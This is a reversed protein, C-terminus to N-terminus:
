PPSDPKQNPNILTGDAAVCGAQRLADGVAHMVPQMFQTALTFAIESFEAVTFTIRDGLSFERSVPELRLALGEGEEVRLVTGEAERSVSGDRGAVVLRQQWWRITLSKGGKTEKVTVRGDRHVFCNRAMNLSVVSAKVHEPLTVYGAKELTKLKDPLGSAHFNAQRTQCASLEDGLIKAKKGVELWLFFHHLHDLFLNVGEIVDRFGCALLWTCIDERVWSETPRDAESWGFRAFTGLEADALTAEACRNMGIAVRQYSIALRRQLDARLAFPDITISLPIPLADTTPM